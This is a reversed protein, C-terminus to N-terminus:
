KDTKNNRTFHLTILGGLVGGVCFATVIAEALLDFM